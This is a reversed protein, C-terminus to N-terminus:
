VAQLNKTESIRRAEFADVAKGYIKRWSSIKVSPNDRRNWLYNRFVLEDLIVAEDTSISKIDNM